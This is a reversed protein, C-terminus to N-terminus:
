RSTRRLTREGAAEHAGRLLEVALQSTVPGPNIIAIWGQRAHVPHPLVTDVATWDVPEPVTRPDEGMLKTFRQRGIHVNLRWRGNGLHSTTDDPYDKTVITAYPQERQPLEGTPSHYFFHDGWALPPYPSGETPALELIADFSRMTTLIHEMDM